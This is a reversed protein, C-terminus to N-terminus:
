LSQSGLSSSMALPWTSSHLVSLAGPARVGSRDRPSRSALVQLGPSSRHSPGHHLLPRRLRAQLHDLASRPNSLLPPNWLLHIGLADHRALLGSRKDQKNLFNDKGLGFWAKPGVTSGPFCSSPPPSALAGPTASIANCTSSSISASALRSPSATVPSSARSSPPLTSPGICTSGRTPTSSVLPSPSVHSNRSTYTSPYLRRSSPRACTPM